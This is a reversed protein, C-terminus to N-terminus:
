ISRMPQSGHKYVSWLRQVEASLSAVKANLEDIRGESSAGSSSSAAAAVSAAAIAATLGRPSAAAAAVASSAREYRDRAAAPNLPERSVGWRAPQLSRAAGPPPAPALSAAAGSAAPVPAAVAAASIPVGVEAGIGSDVDDDADSHDSGCAAESAAELEMIELVASRLESARQRFALANSRQRRGQRQLWERALTRAAALQTATPREGATACCAASCAAAAAGDEKAPAAAAGAVTAAAAAAAGAAAAASGLKKKTGALGTGTGLRAFVDAVDDETYVRGHELAAVDSAPVPPPAAPAAGAKVAAARAAADSVGAILATNHAARRLLARYCDLPENFYPGQAAASTVARRTVPAESTYTAAEVAAAAEAAADSGPAAASARRLLRLTRLGAGREAPLPTELGHDLAATSVTAAGRSGGRGSPSLRFRVLLLVAELFDARVSGVDSPPHAPDCRQLINDRLQLLDGVRLACFRRLAALLGAQLAQIYPESFTVPLFAELMSVVRMANPVHRFATRLRLASGSRTLATTAAALAARAAPSHSPAASQQTPSLFM